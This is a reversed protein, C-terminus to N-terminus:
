RGRRKPRPDYPDTQDTELVTYRTGDPMTLTDTAVISAKNPIDALLDRPKVRKRRPKRAKKKRAEVM